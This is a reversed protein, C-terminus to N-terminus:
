LSTIQRGVTEACRYTEFLTLKPIGRLALRLKGRRRRERIKFAHFNMEVGVQLRLERLSRGLLATVESLSNLINNRTVELPFVAENFGHFPALGSELPAFKKRM